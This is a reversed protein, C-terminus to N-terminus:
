PNQESSLSSHNNFYASFVSTALIVLCSTIILVVNKACFDQMVFVSIIAVVYGTSLILIFKLLKFKINYINDVIVSAISGGLIPAFMMTVYIEGGLFYSLFLFPISVISGMLFGYLVQKNKM